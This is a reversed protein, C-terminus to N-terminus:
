LRMEGALGQPSRDGGADDVIRPSTFTAFFGDGATDRERGGFRKLNRRVVEHHHTVLVRWRADGLESAIETSGVIDTFLAAALSRDAGRRGM